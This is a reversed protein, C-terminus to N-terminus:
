MDKIQSISFNFDFLRNQLVSLFVDMKLFYQQFLLWFHFKFDNSKNLSGDNQQFSAPNLTPENM